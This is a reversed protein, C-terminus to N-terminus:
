CLRSFVGPHFLHLLARDLPSVYTVPEAALYGPVYHTETSSPLEHAMLVADFGRQHVAQMLSATDPAEGPFLAYSPTASIGHDRLSKVFGDEWLRRSTADKRLTVVLVNNLPQAPANPDRWMNVLSTSTCAALVIGALVPLRRLPRRLSPM